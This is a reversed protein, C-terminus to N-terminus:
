PREGTIFDLPATVSADELAALPDCGICPDFVKSVDTVAYSRPVCADISSIGAPLDGVLADLIRRTPDFLDELSDRHLPQDSQDQYLSILLRYAGICLWDGEQLRVPALHGLSMLSNNIFTHGCRDIACFSNEILRIECHVPQVRRERDVLQWTANQSGITGGDRDFQHHATVGHQLQELNSISLMLTNM